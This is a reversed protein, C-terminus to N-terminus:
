RRGASPTAELMLPGLRGASPSSNGTIEFWVRRARFRFDLKSTTPDIQLAGSTVVDTRPFGEGYFAIQLGGVQNLINPVCRMINMTHDGDEGDFPACKLSSVLANGNASQGKEHFYLTTTTGEYGAWIPFPYAGSSIGSTRAVTGSTWCQIDLQFAVYSNVENSIRGDAYFWFVENFEPMYVAWTKEEQGVAINDFVDNKLSCEIRTPNAGQYDYTAVFFDKKSMWFVRGRAEVAAMRGILGNGTGLLSYTYPNGPTNTPAMGYTATDTFIFNGNRTPLGGIIRGGAALIVESAFNTTSPVWNQNNAKDSTRVCMPNYIGNAQYTGCAVAIQDSGVFGSESLVPAGDLRYATSELKVSVSTVTGAFANDKAIIFDIPTAPCVCRLTYTGSKNIPASVSIVSGNNIAFYCTGASRTLTVVIRYVRGGELFGTLAQSLNSATGAVATATSGAISWGTGTAWGTSAAFTGNTMLEPYSLSPQWEFFPGLRPVALLNQGWNKLSWVRPLFDSTSPLSYAGSSYAGTGYGLGGTGDVLGATLTAKFWVYGGGTADSTANSGHTITFKTSTPVTVVTYTGNPTIGGVADAFSIIVSDGTKLGHPVTTTTGAASSYVANTVTVTPSGNVTTFCDKLFWETHPPTIDTYTSGDSAYLNTATGMALWSVGTKDAWGHMGRVFGSITNNNVAEYGGMIQPRAMADANSRYFRWWQASIYGGESALPTDDKIIGPKFEIKHLAAAPM